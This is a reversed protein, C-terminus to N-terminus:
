ARYKDYRPEIVEHYFRNPDGEVGLLRAIEERARTSYAEDKRIVRLTDGLDIFITNIM